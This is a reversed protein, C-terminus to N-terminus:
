NRTYGNRLIGGAALLLTSVQKGNSASSSSERPSTNGLIKGESIGTDPITGPDTKEKGSIATGWRWDTHGASVRSSGVGYLTQQARSTCPLALLKQRGWTFLLLGATAWTIAENAEAVEYLGLPNFPFATGGTHPIM